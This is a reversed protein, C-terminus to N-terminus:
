GEPLEELDALDKARGAARKNRRLDALSIVTVLVGDVGDLQTREARQYSDPFTLGTVSTLIELRMPPAGLRVLREPDLFTEPEIQPDDFGFAHLVQVMRAATDPECAIWIDLDQTPRPYGHYAVAYGGVLLYEVEHVDLLRLFDSFDKPLQMTEM